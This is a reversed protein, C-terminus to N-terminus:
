NITATTSYDSDTVTNCNM